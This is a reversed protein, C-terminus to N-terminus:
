RGAFGSSLLNNGVMGFATGVRGDLILRSRSGIVKGPNGLVEDLDGNKRSKDMPAGVCVEMRYTLPIGYSLMSSHLSPSFVCWAPGSIGLVKINSPEYRPETHINYEPVSHYWAAMAFVLKCKCKWDTGCYYLVFLAACLQILAIGLYRVKWLLGSSGPV